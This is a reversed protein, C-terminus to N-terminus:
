DVITVKKDKTLNKILYEVIEDTHKDLKRQFADHLYFKVILELVAKELEDDNM